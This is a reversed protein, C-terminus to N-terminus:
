RHQEDSVDENEAYIDAGHDLLLHAVEPRGNSSAVHLPTSYDKDQASIDVGYQLLLRVIEVYGFKSAQRLPTYSADTAANIRVSHELLMRVIELRGNVAAVIIPTWHDVQQSDADAGHDLLWQAVDILGEVSATHLPTRNHYDLVDVVAGHQRLLEAVNFHGKFLAAVLPSHNDGGRANVQEPHELIIHAALDRLGCLSAYYLPSGHHLTKDYGGFHTRHDDIDHLQLWVSFYPKSSDFLLRMGDEIRSSVMGFQAHGVWHRSAYRALPFSCKIQDNDASGDLQLLIGLCAKTLTTHAPDAKIHFLSADGKSTALRDSTLFEKVSFHTFARQRDEWWWDENLKPTAGEAGDFDLALIEALEEVRLPQTAVTLCQLLRHAYDRNAMGIEKLVREYTEDLSKPLENLTRRISQPLCHQLVELQCFVWRFMGDARETLTEIVLEKDKDRWRRMATDSDAYVVSKIYDEVDKKQGSQEHISVPHFALPELAAQIDIEPRSTLCIHLDSLQLGVLDKLLDLVQKRASPIGSTNPCKDLADLIIYIPGQGPLTLMEKLCGMLTSTSPKHAGGDHSKYLHSLIDYCSDSRASLQTLLSPLLNHLSQKDTDRFDFYFYAMLALGAERLSIIDQIIASSTSPTLEM